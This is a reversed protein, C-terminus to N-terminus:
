SKLELVYYILTKQVLVTLPWYVLIKNKSINQVPHDFSFFSNKKELRWSGMYEFPYNSDLATLLLPNGPATATQSFLWLYNATLRFPISFQGNDLDKDM